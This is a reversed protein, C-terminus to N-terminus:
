SGGENETQESAAPSYKKVWAAMLTTDGKKKAYYAKRYEKLKDANAQSWAKYDDALKAKNESRWKKHVAKKRDPDARSWASSVAKSKEPNAKRWELVGASLCAKCYSTIGDRYFKNKAFGDIPKAKKCKNCIKM